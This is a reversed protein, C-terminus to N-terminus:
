LPQRHVSVKVSVIRANRFRVGNLGNVTAKTSPSRYSTSRGSIRARPLANRDEDRGSAHRHEEVVLADVLDDAVQGAAPGVGVSCRRVTIGGPLKV